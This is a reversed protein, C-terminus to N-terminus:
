AGAKSGAPPLGGPDPADGSRDRGVRAGAGAAKRFWVEGAGRWEEKRVMDTNAAAGLLAGALTEADLTDAGTAIVLEGLQAVKRRRLDRAKDGLAKLESDYDRPKRMNSGGQGVPDDM